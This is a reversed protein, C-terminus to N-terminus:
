CKRYLPILVLWKTLIYHSIHDVVIYLLIHPMGCQSVMQCSSQGHPKGPKTRSLQRIHWQWFITYSPIHIYTLYQWEDLSPFGQSPYIIKSPEHSIERHYLFLVGFGAAARASRGVPVESSKGSDFPKKLNKLTLKLDKRTKKPHNKHFLGSCWYQWVALDGCFTMLCTQPNAFDSVNLWLMGVYHFAVFSNPAYYLQQGFFQEFACALSSLACEPM